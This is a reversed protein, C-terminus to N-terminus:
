VYNIQLLIFFLRLGLTFRTVGFSGLLRYEEFRQNIKKEKIKKKLQRVRQGSHASRTCLARPGGM